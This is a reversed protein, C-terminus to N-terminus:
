RDLEKLMETAMEDVTNFDAIMQPHFLIKPSKHAISHVAFPQFTVMSLQEDQLRDHSVLDGRQLAEDASEELRQYDLRREPPVSHPPVYLPIRHALSDRFDKIHLFWTKRSDLYDNFFKSFSKRVQRFESGLGVMKPELPKGNARVIGKELVWVWALNDCCGFVNFVFAQIHICADVVENWEPLLEREPPLIEFVRDICRILSGIRRGFGQRAFDRASVEKFKRVVFQQKLGEYKVHVDSFGRVLDDIQAQTFYM